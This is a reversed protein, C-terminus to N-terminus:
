NNFKELAKQKANNLNQQKQLRVRSSDQVRVTSDKTATVATVTTNGNRVSVDVRVVNTVSMTTTETAAINGNSTNPEGATNTSNLSGEVKGGVKMGTKLGSNIDKVAKNINKVDAKRKFGSKKSKGTSVMQKAGQINFEETSADGTRIMQQDGSRQGSDDVMSAGGLKPSSDDTRSGENSVNGELSNSFESLATGISSFFSGVAETANNVATAVSNAIGDGIGSVPNPCCGFPKMGDPDIFYIPNDFAYNYPSHRRMAEALPDLNMWRGIAPDYNRATIDIWELGLEDQEEKGGFGYNHKRGTITQNYGKHQLGFPYYNKEERIEMANDGDGDVDVDNRLVDVKGDNDRDSYSLRINGLHDKYQYVYEYGQSLDNANKPEAYGEPHHFFKLTTGIGGITEYIHNGTYQTVNGQSVRKELKNGIADYVYNITNVHNIQVRTPLNLHNYSIDQIGKNRDIIMNGNADYEYDDGSTNGDIFGVNKDYADTVSTLQNGVGYSYDLNDMRADESISSDTTRILKEINGNKDYTVGSLSHFFSSFQARNIRNLADYYYRYSRKTTGNDNATKWHTESINGNYLLEAAGQYPYTTPDSTNY